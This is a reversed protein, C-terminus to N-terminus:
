FAGTGVIRSCLHSAGPLSAARRHRCGLSSERRRHQASVGPRSWRDGPIRGLRAVRATLRQAIQSRRSRRLAADTGIYIALFNEELWRRLLAVAASDVVETALPPMQKSRGRRSVLDIVVSDNPRGADLVDAATRYTNTESVNSAEGARLLFRSRM